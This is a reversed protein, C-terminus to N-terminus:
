LDSIDLRCSRIRSQRHVNPAFVITICWFNHSFDEEKKKRNHENHAM